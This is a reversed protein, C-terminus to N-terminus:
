PRVEEPRGHLDHELRDTWSTAALETLLAGAIAYAESMSRSHVAAQTTIVLMRSMAQCKSGPMASMQEALQIAQGFLPGGFSKALEALGNWDHSAQRSSM